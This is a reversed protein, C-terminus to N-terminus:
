GMRSVRRSASAKPAMLKFAKRVLSVTTNGEHDKAAPLDAYVMVGLEDVSNPRQQDESSVPPPMPRRTSHFMRSKHQPIATGPTSSVGGVPGINDSQYGKGLRKVGSTAMLFRDYVGEIRHRSPTDPINDDQSARPRQPYPEVHLPSSTLEDFSRSRDYEVSQCDLLNDRSTLLPAIILSRDIVQSLRPTLPPPPVSFPFEILICTMQQLDYLCVKISNPRWSRYPRLIDRSSFCTEMLNPNRKERLRPDV